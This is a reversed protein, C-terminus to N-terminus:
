LILKRIASAVGCERNSGTVLDAREKVEEPANGMAVGTGAFELMALDNASDGMAVTNERKVGTIEVVKEIGNAKNLGKKVCDAYTNIPFFDLEKSFMSVFDEEPVPGMAFLQIEDNECFDEVDKVSHIEKQFSNPERRGNSIIYNGYYGEFVCWYDTCSLFYDALKIILDHPLKERRYEAGGITVMAGNGCVYGDVELQDILKQPINGWSRGTNIFVLHGKERAQAIAALNEEPVMFSDVILTGDIDLFFALRNEDSIM